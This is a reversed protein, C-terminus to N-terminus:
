VLTVQVGDSFAEYLFAHALQDIFSLKEIVYDVMEVLLGVSVQLPSVLAGLLEERLVGIHLPPLQRQGLGHAKM